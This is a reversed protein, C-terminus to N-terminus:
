VAARLAVGSRGTRQVVPMTQLCAWLKRGGLVKAMLGACNDTGKVRLLEAKKDQFAKHTGCRKPQM